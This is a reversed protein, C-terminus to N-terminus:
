AASSTRRRCGDSSAVSAVASCTGVRGNRAAFTQVALLPGGGSVGLSERQLHPNILPILSSASRSFHLISTPCDRARLLLTSDLPPRDPRLGLRRGTM